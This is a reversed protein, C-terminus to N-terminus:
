FGATVVFEKGSWDDVFDIELYAVEKEDERKIIFQLGEVQYIKDYVTPEDRVM